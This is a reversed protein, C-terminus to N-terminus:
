FSGRARLNDKVLTVSLHLIWSSKVDEVTLGCLLHHSMFDHLHYSRMDLSFHVAQGRSTGRCAAKAGAVRAAGRGSTLGGELM